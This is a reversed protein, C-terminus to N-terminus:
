GFQRFHQKLKMQNRRSIWVRRIDYIMLVGAIASTTLPNRLFYISLLYISLVLFLFSFWKSSKMFTKKRSLEQLLDIMVLRVLLLSLFYLLFFMFVNMPKMLLLTVYDSIQQYSLVETDPILLNAGQFMLWSFLMFTLNIIM